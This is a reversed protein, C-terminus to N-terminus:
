PQQPRSLEPCRVSVPGARTGTGLDQLGVASSWCSSEDARDPRVPRVSWEFVHDNGRGLGRKAEEHSQRGPCPVARGVTLQSGTGLTLYPLPDPPGGAARIGQGAVSWCDTFPSLVLREGGAPGGPRPTSGFDGVIDDPDPRSRPHSEFDHRGCREPGRWLQCVGPCTVGNCGSDAHPKSAPVPTATREELSLAQPIAAHYRSAIGRTPHLSGYAHDM